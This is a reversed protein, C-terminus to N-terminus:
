WSPAPFRDELGADIEAPTLVTVRAAALEIALPLGDLRRCISAVAPYDAAIRVAGRFADAREM